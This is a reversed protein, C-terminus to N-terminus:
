SQQCYHTNLMLLMSFSSYQKDGKGNKRTAMQKRATMYM